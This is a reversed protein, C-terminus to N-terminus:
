RWQYHGIHYGSLISALSIKPSFYNNRRTVPCAASRPAECLPRRPLSTRVLKPLSGLRAQHYNVHNANPDISAPKRTWSAPQFRSSSRRRVEGAGFDPRTGKARSSWHRCFCLVAEEADFAQHPCHDAALSLDLGCATLNWRCCRRQVLHMYLRSFPVLCASFCM